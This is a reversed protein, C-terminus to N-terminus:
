ALGDNDDDVNEGSSVAVKVLWGLMVGRGVVNLRYTIVMLLLVVGGVCM